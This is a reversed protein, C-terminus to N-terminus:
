KHPSASATAPSAAALPKPPADKSVYNLEEILVDSIVPMGLRANVAEKIGKTMEELNYKSLHDFEIKGDTYIRRFAEDVVFPQPDFPFAHADKPAATFVVTAVVYGRLRGDAIMPVTIAAPKRFELTELKHEIRAAEVTEGPNWTAAMYAAILAVACGWLGLAVTKLIAMM